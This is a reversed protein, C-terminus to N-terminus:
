GFASLSEQLPAAGPNFVRGQLVAVTDLNRARYYQDNAAFDQSLTKGGV